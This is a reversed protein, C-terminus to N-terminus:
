QDLPTRDPCGGDGQWHPFIITTWRVYDLLTELEGPFTSLDYVTTDLVTIPVQDLEDLTVEGDLNLDADILPQALRTIDTHRLANFFHHDAHITLKVQTTGGKPINVGVQTPTQCGDAEAGFPLQWDFSVQEMVTCPRNEDAPNEDNILYPCVEGGTKTLVMRTSVALGNDVMENYNEDSVDGLKQSESSAMPMSYGVSEWDGTPVDNFEAVLLGSTPANKLDIVFNDHMAFIDNAKHVDEEVPDHSIHIDGLCVIFKEYSLNWGDSMEEEADGAPIGNVITWEPEVYFQVSGTSGDSSEDCGSFPLVFLSFLAAFLTSKKFIKM